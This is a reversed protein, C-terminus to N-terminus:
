IRQECHTAICRTILSGTIGRDVPQPMATALQAASTINLTEIRVPETRRSRLRELRHLASASALRRGRAQGM